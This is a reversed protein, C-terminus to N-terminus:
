NIGETAKLYSRQASAADSFARIMANTVTFIAIVDGSDKIEEVNAVADKLAQAAAFYRQADVFVTAVEVVKSPPVSRGHTRTALSSFWADKAEKAHIWIAQWDNRSRRIVDSSVSIDTNSLDVNEFSFTTDTM